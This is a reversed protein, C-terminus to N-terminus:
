GATERSVRSAGVRIASLIRGLIFKALWLSLLLHLGLFSTWFLIAWM